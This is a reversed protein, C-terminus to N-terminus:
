PQSYSSIKYIYIYINLEQPPTFHLRNITCASGARSSIHILISSSCQVGNASCYFVHSRCVDWVTWVVSSQFIYEQFNIWRCKETLSKWWISVAHVFRNRFQPPVAQVYGETRTQVYTLSRQKQCIFSIKISCSWPLKETKADRFITPLGSLKDPFTCIIWCFLWTVQVNLKTLQVWVEYTIRRDVVSFLKQM